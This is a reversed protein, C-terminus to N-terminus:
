RFMKASIVSSMYENIEQNSPWIDKLYVPNGDKDEALPDNFIDVNMNGAIAYAVVLPPSALYNAMTLPHVRGEFNRNGSLVASVTIGNEIVAEEIEQALPGSNGICTTCCFGVLNFGIADMHETLGGKDMYEQVVQSGPAFSTKVWPKPKIGLANAKKAVLGAGVLVAPNSTNTCSTIAALVVAGDEM